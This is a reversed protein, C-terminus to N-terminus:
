VGIPAAEKLLDFVKNLRDLKRTNKKAQMLFAKTEDLVNGKDDGKSHYTTYVVNEDMVFILGKSHVLLRDRQGLGVIVGSSKLTSKIENEIQVTYLNKFRERFREFAHGAIEMREIKGPSMLHYLPVQRGEAVMKMVAEKKERTDCSM